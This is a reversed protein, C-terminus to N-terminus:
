EREKLVIRHAMLDIELIKGEVQTEEGFLTMVRVKEDDPIVRAVDEALLEDKDGRRVFVSSECM